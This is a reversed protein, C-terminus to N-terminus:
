AGEGRTPGEGMSSPDLHLRELFQGTWTLRGDGDRTYITGASITERGGVQEAVGLIEGVRRQGAADRETHVVVDVVAAVTATVFERDVNDGALLPLTTLKRLAERANNAHVTTLGACGSNMAVLLDFCEAGRVEGIVLRDPRMRLSERVLTRLPIEGAGEISPARCQMAVADPLSAALGLEFVEECTVVRQRPPIASGLCDLLTTKGAGVRGSVVIGLGARVAEGLFHAAAPTLSGATVLGGLTTTRLGVFKRINVSWEDVVPPIAVHLRSGDALRADAFPCSRDLRRGAGALLREVLLELEGPGFVVTTLEHGGARACFVREPGNVWVEEVAPDAMLASLPGFGALADALAAAAGVTPAEDQVGAAFRERGRAAAAEVAGAVYGADVAGGAAVHARIRQRVEARLM